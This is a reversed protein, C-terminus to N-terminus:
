VKLGVVVFVGVWLAFLCDLLLDNHSKAITSKKKIYTM